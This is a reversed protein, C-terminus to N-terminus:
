MRKSIDLGSTWECMQNCLITNHWPLLFIGCSKPPVYKYIEEVFVDYKYIEWCFFAYFRENLDRQFFSVKRQLGELLMFGKRSIDLSLMFSIM